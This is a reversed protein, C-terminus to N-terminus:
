SGACAPTRREPAEFLPLLALFFHVPASNPDLELAVSYSQKRAPASGMSSGNQKLLIAIHRLM